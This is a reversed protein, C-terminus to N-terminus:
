AHGTRSLRQDLLVLAMGAWFLLNKFGEAPSRVVFELWCWVAFVALFLIM